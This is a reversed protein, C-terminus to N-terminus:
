LNNVSKNLMIIFDKKSWACVDTGYLHINKLTKISNLFDSNLLDDKSISM